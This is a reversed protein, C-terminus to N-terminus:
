ITLRFEHYQKGPWKLMLYLIIAQRTSDSHRCLGIRLTNLELLIELQHYEYSDVYQKDIAMLYKCFQYSDWEHKNHGQPWYTEVYQLFYKTFRFNLLTATKPIIRHVEAMRKRRLLNAQQQLQDIQLSLVDDALKKSACLRNVTSKQNAIFQKLLAADSLLHALIESLNTYPPQM